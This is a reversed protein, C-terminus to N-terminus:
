HHHGHEGDGKNLEAMLYFAGHTVVEAKDSLPDAPVVEAYGLDRIGVKVEQKLFVREGEERHSADEQAWVFIYDMGGDRVIAAEPLARAKRQGVEIRAEVYM